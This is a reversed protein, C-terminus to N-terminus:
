LAYSLALGASFTQYSRDDPAFATGDDDVGGYGIDAAVVWGGPATYDASLRVDWYSRAPIFLDDAAVYDNETRVGYTAAITAGIEPTLIRSYALQGFYYDGNGSINEKILENTFFDLYENKGSTTYFFSASVSQVKDIVYTGEVNIEIQNGPNFYPVRELTSTEEDFYQVSVAGYMDDSLYQFRLLATLQDGPDFREDLDGDAVYSGRWNRGIAGTLSWKSDPILWTVGVSLNLNLGEGFRVLYTLDPDMVASKQSGHLTALGTPLNVDLTMFPQLNPMWDTSVTAGIVTDTLTEVSGEALPSNNHSMVYATRGSFDLRGKAGIDFTYTVDLPAVMQWGDDDSGDLSWFKYSVQQAIEGKPADGAAAFASGILAAACAAALAGHKIWVDM